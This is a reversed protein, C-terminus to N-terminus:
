ARGPSGRMMQVGRNGRIAAIKKIGADFLYHTYEDAKAAPTKGHWIRAVLPKHTELAVEAAQAEPDKSGESVLATAALGFTFSTRTRRLDIM